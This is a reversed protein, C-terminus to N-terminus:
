LSGAPRDEVRQVVMEGGDEKLMRLHAIVEDESLYNHPVEDGDEPDM